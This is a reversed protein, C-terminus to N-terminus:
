CISVKLAKSVVVTDSDSAARARGDDKTVPESGSSYGVAGLVRIRSDIIAKAGGGSQSVHDSGSIYGVAGVSRM